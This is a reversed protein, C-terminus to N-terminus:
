RFTSKSSFKPIQIRCKNCGNKLFLLIIKLNEIAEMEKKQLANIKM